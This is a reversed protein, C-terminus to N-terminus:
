YTGVLPDPPGLSLVDLRARFADVDLSMIQLDHLVGDRDIAHRALRAERRFGMRSFVAIAARQDTTMQAVMKKVGMKRANAFAQETLLRGLRKGRMSEAVLVRLEAVHRSWSLGERGVTAAGVVEDGRLAVVTSYLGDEVLQLWARVHEPQTIDRRLFLLDHEPLARAFTLLAQEDAATALRLTLPVGDLTLQAPYDLPEQAQAEVQESVVWAHGGLLRGLMSGISM